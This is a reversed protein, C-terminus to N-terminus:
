ASAERARRAVSRRRAWEGTAFYGALVAVVLAAAVGVKLFALIAGLPGLQVLKAVPLVVLLLFLCLLRLAYAAFRKETRRLTAAGRLDRWLGLLRARVVKRATV